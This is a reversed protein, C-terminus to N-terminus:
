RRSRAVHVVEPVDLGGAHARSGNNFLVWQDPGSITQHNLDGPLIQVGYDVDPFSSLDWPGTFLM